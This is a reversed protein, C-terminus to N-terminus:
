NAKQTAVAGDVSSVIEWLWGDNGNDSAQSCSTLLIDSQVHVDMYCDLAINVNRMITAVGINSSIIFDRSVNSPQLLKDTHRYSRQTTIIMDGKTKTKKKGPKDRWRLDGTYSIITNRWAARNTIKDEKLGVETMDRKCADKWRLNPWGRRRIGPIDVDLTRRVIHEEKMRRVHGYWKLRKETIKKSVQVERQWTQLNVGTKMRRPYFSTIFTMYFYKFFGEPTFYMHILIQNKSGSQHCHSTSLKGLLNPWITFFILTDINTRIVKQCKM